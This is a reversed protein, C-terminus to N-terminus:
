ICFGIVIGADYNGLFGYPNASGDKYVGVYYVDDSARSSRTWWDCPKEGDPFTRALLETPASADRGTEHSFAQADDTDVVIGGANIGAQTFLRYQSGEEALVDNCWAQDDTFWAIDQGWIEAASPIWLADDTVSLSASPNEAGANGLNNTTKEVPTIAKELDDPFSPLVENALWARAESKEWGGANSPGANMGHPGVATTALFTIGAKGSGDSKDDHYIDAVRVAITEGSDLAISKTGEAISGDEDVFGYSAARALAGEEDSASEIDHAAAEIEDWTMTGLAGSDMSTASGQACGSVAMSALLALFMLFVVTRGLSDRKSARRGDNLHLAHIM